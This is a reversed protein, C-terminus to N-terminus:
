RKKSAKKRLEEVRELYEPNEALFKKHIKEKGVKYLEYAEGATLPTIILLLFVGVYEHSSAALFFIHYPNKHPLLIDKSGYIKECNFSLHLIIM